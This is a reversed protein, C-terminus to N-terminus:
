IGIQQNKNEIFLSYKQQSFQTIKLAGIYAYRSILCTVITHPPLISSRGPLRYGVYVSLRQIKFQVRLSCSNRVSYGITSSYVTNHHSDDRYQRRDTPGDTQRHSLTNHRGPDTYM